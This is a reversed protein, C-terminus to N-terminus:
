PDSICIASVTKAAQHLIIRAPKYILYRICMKVFCEGPRTILGTRPCATKAAHHVLGKVFHWRQFFQCIFKSRSRRRHM